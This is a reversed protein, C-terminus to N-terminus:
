SCSGSTLIQSVVKASIRGNERRFGRPLIEVNGGYYLNGKKREKKVLEGQGKGSKKDGENKRTLIPLHDAWM